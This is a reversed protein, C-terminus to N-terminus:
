TPEAFLNEVLEVLEAIRERSVGVMVDVIVGTQDIVFVTPVQSALYQRTVRGEPDSALTYDMGGARRAAAEGEAPSDVTVGVVEFGRPRYSQQMRSLVPALYRCVGCWSAWFELLVVRGRLEDLSAAEGRFTVVGSISPARLGVFALRLRDEFEPKGDLSVRGLRHHGARLLLLPSSTGPQQGDVWDILEQPSEVQHDGLRLLIDGAVLGAREAPSGRLVRQVRVGPEGRPTAALEIGLWPRPGVPYRLAPLADAGQVVPSLESVPEPGPSVALVPGPKAFPERVQGSARPDVDPRSGRPACGSATLCSVLILAVCRM